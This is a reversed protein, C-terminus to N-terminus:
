NRTLELLVWDDLQDRHTVHLEHAALAAAVEDARDAMLGSVSLMAGPSTVRALEAGLELLIPAELNAVVLDLEAEVQALARDSIRCRDPLRNLAVNGRAADVAVPDVDTAEVFGAGSLLAVM